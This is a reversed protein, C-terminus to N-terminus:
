IACNLVSIWKVHGGETKLREYNSFDAVVYKFLAYTPAYSNPELLDAAHKTAFICDSPCRIIGEFM